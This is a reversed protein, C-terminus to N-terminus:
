AELKSIPLIKGGEVFAIRLLFMMEDERSSMSGRREEGRGGCV